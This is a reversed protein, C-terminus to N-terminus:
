KCDECVWNLIFSHNKVNFWFQNELIKIEKDVFCWINVQRNCIDCVFHHHHNKKLSYKKEWSKSFDEIIDWDVLLKDLNRYITTKDISNWFFEFIWKASIWCNDQSIIDLIKYKNTM